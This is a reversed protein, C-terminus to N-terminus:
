LGLIPYSAEMTTDVIEEPLGAFVSDALEDYLFNKADQKMKEISTPKNTVTIRSLLHTLKDLKIQETDYKGYREQDMQSKQYDYALQLPTKGQANVKNAKVNHKYLLAVMKCAENEEIIGNIVSVVILHLVTNKHFYKELPKKRSRFFDATTCHRPWPTLDILEYGGQWNPDAGYKLLLEMKNYAEAKDITLQLASRAHSGSECSTVNPKAGEKLCCEVEKAIGSCIANILKIDIEDEAICVNKEPQKETSQEASTELGLIQWHKLILDEIIKMNKNSDIFIAGFLSEISDALAKINERVNNHEDSKGLILYKGIDLYNALKSQANNSVLQSNMQTLQGEQWHPYKTYLISSVALGIVRDGLYELRQYDGIANSQIGEIVATKRTLAQALLQKNKFSYGLKKCLKTYHETHNNFFM